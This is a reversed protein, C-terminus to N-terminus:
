PERLLETLTIVTGPALDYGLRTIQGMPQPLWLFPSTRIRTKNSWGDVTGISVFGADFVDPPDFGLQGLYGPLTDFSIKVGILGTVNITGAGSLASHVTGSVYGFPVAQRQILTMGTLLNNLMQMIQPDPPCCAAQGSPGVTGNTSLALSIAGYTGWTNADATNGSNVWIALINPGPVIDSIHAAWSGTNLYTFQGKGNFNGLGSSIGGGSQEAHFAAACLVNPDFTPMTFRWRILYQEKGSAPTVWPAIPQPMCASPALGNPSIGFCSFGGSLALPHGLNDTPASSFSWASDDFNPQDWNTPPAVHTTGNWLNLVRCQAQLMPVCISQQASVIVPLSTPQSIVPVSQTPQPGSNCQCFKLWALRKVLADVKALAAAPSGIGFPNSLAILDTADITPLAPPDSACFTTLNLFQAQYATVFPILWPVGYQTLLVDLAAISFAIQAPASTQPSSSAGGCLATV